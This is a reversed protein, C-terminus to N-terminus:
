VYLLTKVSCIRVLISNLSNVWYTTHVHFKPLVCVSPIQFCSTSINIGLIFRCSDPSFQMILPTRLYYLFDIICWYLSLNSFSSIVFCTARVPSILRAHM